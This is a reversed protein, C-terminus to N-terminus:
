VIHKHLVTDNYGYTTMSNKHRMFMFTDDIVYVCAGLTKRV